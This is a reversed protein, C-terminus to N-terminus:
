TESRWPHLARGADFSLFRAAFLPASAAANPLFAGLLLTLPIAAAIRPRRHLRSVVREPPTSHNM